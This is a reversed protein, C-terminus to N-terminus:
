LKDRDHCITFFRSLNHFITVFQSFDHLAVKICVIVYLDNYSRDFENVAM